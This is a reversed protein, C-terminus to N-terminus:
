VKSFVDQGIKEIEGRMKKLEDGWSRLEAEEKEKLRKTEALVREIESIQNKVTEFLKLGEEFRDIRVFVPEAEQRFMQRPKELREPFEEEIEEEVEEAMPKRLPERMRRTEEDFFDDANFGGEREGSVADKISDQSFKKGFSSSPFSPLQHIMRDGMSDMPLDPLRPLKPLAPIEAESRKEKNGFLGM